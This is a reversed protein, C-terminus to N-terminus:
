DPSSFKYNSMLSQLDMLKQLVSVRLARSWAWHFRLGLLSFYGMGASGVPIRKGGIFLTGCQENDEGSRSSDLDLDCGQIRKGGIFLTGCQENDEGGRSSDLDLDC